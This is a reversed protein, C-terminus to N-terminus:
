ADIPLQALVRIQAIQDPAHGLQDGIQRLKVVQLCAIHQVGTGGFAYARHSGAVLQEPADGTHTLDGHANATRM